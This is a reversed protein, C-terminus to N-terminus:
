DIRRVKCNWCHFVGFAFSSKWVHHHADCAEPFAEKLEEESDYERRTPDDLWVFKSM